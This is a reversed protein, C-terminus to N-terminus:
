LSSEQREKKKKKKEKKSPPELVNVKISPFSATQNRWRKPMELHDFGMEGAKEPGHSSRRQSRPKKCQSWWMVLEVLWRM